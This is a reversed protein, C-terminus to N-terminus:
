LLGALITYREVVRDNSVAAGLARPSGVVVSLRRARTLATYLLNRQLMVYHAPILCLVVAPFESGQSKHVSCAYSLMLADIDAWPYRVMRGDYDVVIEGAERDVEAVVGQDGNFVDRTYDNRTQMVRDGPLFAGAPLEGAAAALPNLARQLMRNLAQVGAPGRHMPALVQVDTVPDLGFRRPIRRAVVDVVMEAAETADEVKFLFSDTDSSGFAPPRGTRIRHANVVIQSGAAQRHVEQLRVAPLRGSALIDGLVNGPGVSPLQDADGVLLLHTGPDLGRMLAQMLQSDVMSAEDVVVLDAEVPNERDRQFEMEEFPAYDLLRHITM